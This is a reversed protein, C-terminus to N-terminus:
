LCEAMESQIWMKTKRNKSELIFDGGEGKSENGSVSFSENEELFRKMEEPCQIFSDRIYTEMYIPMNLSFFLPLFKCTGATIACANNRWVCARFVHLAFCYTFVVEAIFKYNPNGVGLYWQYFGLVSPPSSETTERIYVLLLESTMAEM